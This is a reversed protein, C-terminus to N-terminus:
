KSVVSVQERIMQLSLDIRRLHTRFHLSVLRLTFRGYIM